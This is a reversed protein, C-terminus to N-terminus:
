RIGPEFPRTPDACENGALNRGRALYIAHVFGPAAGAPPIHKVSAPMYRMTYGCRRLDSTNANSGHILRGHHLHFQNPELELDVAQSEDFQDARIQTGFVNKDADVPEYESYGNDHTGPIVRMCGNERTSPDIALWITLVEPDSLRGKWYASDEHWPVARGHGAPKSIFHSSWLVIDPGLFAEVVDLVRDDLLWQFLEPHAFHPVDMGEPRRGAPLGALLREFCAKLADFRDPPFLPKRCILYGNRRYFAVDDESIISARDTTSMARPYEANM